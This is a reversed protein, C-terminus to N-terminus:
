RHKKKKKKSQKGPSTEQIVCGNMERERILQLKNRWRDLQAEDINWTVRNGKGINLNDLFNTLQAEEESLAQSDQYPNM